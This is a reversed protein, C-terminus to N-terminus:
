TGGAAPGFCASLRCLILGAIPGPNARPKPANGIPIGNQCIAPMNPM